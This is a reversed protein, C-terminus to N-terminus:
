KTSAPMRSQEQQEANAIIDKQARVDDVRHREGYTGNQYYFGPDEQIMAIKHKAQAIVQEPTQTSNAAPATVTMHEVNGSTTDEAFAVATLGIMSLALSMCVAQNFRNLKKM